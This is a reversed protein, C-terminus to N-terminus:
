IGLHNTDRHQGKFIKGIITVVFIKRTSEHFIQDSILMKANKFDNVDSLGIKIRLEITFM